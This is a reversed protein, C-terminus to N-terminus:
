RILVKDCYEKHKSFPIIRNLDKVNYYKSHFFNYANLRINELDVPLNTKDWNFYNVDMLRTDPLIHTLKKKDPTVYFYTKDNKIDDISGRDVCDPHNICIMKGERDGWHRLYLLSLDNDKHLPHLFPDSFIPILIYSM